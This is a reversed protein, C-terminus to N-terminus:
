PLEVSRDFRIAVEHLNARVEEPSEASPIVFGTQQGVKGFAVQLKLEGERVVMGRLGTGIQVVLGDVLKAVETAPILPTMEKGSLQEQAVKLSESLSDREQELGGVKGQAEALAKQAEGLEAATADVQERLKVSAAELRALDRQVEDVRAALAANEKLVADLKDDAAAAAKEAERARRANATVAARLERRETALAKRADQTKTLREELAELRRLDRASIEPM